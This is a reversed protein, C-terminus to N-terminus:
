VSGCIIMKSWCNVQCNRESNKKIIFSFLRKTWIIIIIIIIILNNYLVQCTITTIKQKQQLEFYKYTLPVSLLNLM